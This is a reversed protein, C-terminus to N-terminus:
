SFLISSSIPDGVMRTRGSNPYMCPRNRHRVKLASYRPCTWALWHSCLCHKYGPFPIDERFSLTFGSTEEKDHESTRTRPRAASHTTQAQTLEALLFGASRPESGQLATCIARQSRRGETIQTAGAERWHMTGSNRPGASWVAASGEARSCPTRQHRVAPVRATEEGWRARYQGRGSQSLRCLRGRTRNESEGSYIQM